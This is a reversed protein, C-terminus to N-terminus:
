FRFVLAARWGLWGSIRATGSMGTFLPEAPPLASLYIGQDTDRWDSFLVNLVPGAQVELPGALRVGGCLGVRGVINVADVWERQEVVQEGTLDFALTGRRGLVLETGFGYLFGWREDDTVAPSYGLINHFGRTGTRLVLSLAMVDNTAVAARHYGRWAFSLLGVSTGTITDSFNLVGVQGGDSVRGFNLVGVQGGRVTDAVINLGFAFQGGTVSRAYNAGFGVQGGGVAGTAVNV